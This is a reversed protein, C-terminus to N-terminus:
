VCLCHNYKPDSLLSENYKKTSFCLTLIGPTLFSFESGLVVERGGVQEVGLGDRVKQEEEVGADVEEDVASNHTGDSIKGNSLLNQFVNSFIYTKKRSPM